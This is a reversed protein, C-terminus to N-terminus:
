VNLFRRMTVGSGVAGVTLGVGLIILAIWHFPWATVDSGSDLRGLISPLVAEKGIVLLLVAIASGLLGCILGELM